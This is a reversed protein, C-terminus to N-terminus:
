KEVELLSRQNTSIYALYETDCPAHLLRDVNVTMHKFRYPHKYYKTTHSISCKISLMIKNQIKVIM